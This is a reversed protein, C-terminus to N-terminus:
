NLFNDSGSNESNAPNVSHVENKPKTKFFHVFIYVSTQLIVIKPNKERKKVDLM